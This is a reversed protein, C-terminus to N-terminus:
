DGGGCGGCGGGGGGGDSDGGGGGDSSTPPVRYQHYGAWATGSLVLTGGLAVALALEDAQARPARLIRSHRTKAQAVAQQGARSNRPRAGLMWLAVLACVITLASIFGVPKARELGLMIKALGFGSWLWLPLSSYLRLQWAHADSLVLGRSVLSQEIRKWLPALRKVVAAPRNDRRVAAVVERHADGAPSAGALLRQKQEDWSLAQDALASAVAADMVREPGGELYALELPGLLQASSGAGHDKMRSRLFAGLLVALLLGGAYLALFPGATWDLPNAPLAQVTLPVAMGGLLVALPRALGSVRPRPLLWYRERDIWRWREPRAFREHAAPWWRAPAVGFHQEYRLLTEGYQEVYRRGSVAGGVTPDHHLSRQLVQGCFREWYDRSHTLHLHWVQDVAESPTLPQESICALFCFRRYEEVASRAEDLSWGQERALRRVLDLHQEPREFPHASLRKWLAEQDPFLAPVSSAM